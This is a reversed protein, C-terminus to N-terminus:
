RGGERSRNTAKVARRDEEFGVQLVSADRFSKTTGGIGTRKSMM